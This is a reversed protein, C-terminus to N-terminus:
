CSDIGMTYQWVLFLAHWLIYCAHTCAHWDAFTCTYQAEIYTYIKLTEINIMYSNKLSSITLQNKGKSM